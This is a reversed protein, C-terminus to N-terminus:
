VRPTRIVKKNLFLDSFHQQKEKGSDMEVPMKMNHLKM